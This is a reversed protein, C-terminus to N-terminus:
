SVKSAARAAQERKSLWLLIPAAVFISSYTGVLIGILLCFAFGHIGEGGWIYMLLIAIITTSSTLLTRSLTQTVSANIMKDTLNPSKGKVERIRDFVVITDNLSYGIITLIAAVITLSIKFDEILLFGFPKFLWHSVALLGVTIAVDHILAIVAAVGYSVNNFRFWIYITIFLLSLLLGAIARQQMEGAVRGEIKSFSQFVPKTRVAEKMKDLIASTTSEDFPLKVKWEGFGVESNRTWNTGGSPELEVQSDVLNRGAASTAAVLGEIVQSANLKAATSGLTDRFVLNAETTFEPAFSPKVPEAAPATGSQASSAEAPASEASPTQSPATPEAAPDQYAVMFTRRDRPLSSQTKGVIKSEMDYTVLSAGKAGNFGKLLRERVQADDKLSVDLKYVSNKAFDKMEVNTLTTQIPLGREDEQFAAQAITRVEDPEMSKDLTFVVSTGGNFDIDLFEKGRLFTAALGVAILLGSVLYALNRYSLFDIDQPGFLSRKAQNVYDAMNLKALGWREAIEFLNHAFFVATFMSIVLGIILTMAFGKIQETGVYYLVFASILTTLNSDFITTWARDFGNRIAMRTTANKEREERIREFVLVNADVSMGVSLVLGALGALTLPQRFLMMCAMIMALNLALSITAVFGAFRYYALVGLVTTGLGLWSAFKGKAIADAGMTAGVVNESIPQKSIAGPLSGSNLIQVLFEVDKLTFNGEIQGEGRIPSNLSPASLVIGDLLIAMRRKFGTNTDPQNAITMKLMKEAGGTTMVFSVLYGGNKSIEVKARSLDAGNVEIYPTGNKQLALLVDVDQIKQSELWFEFDNPRGTLVPNLIEGTRANRITDGPVYGQVETAGSQDASRGLTRWVGSVEPEGTTKNPLTVERRLRIDPSLNEAQTRATKILEEHDNLNAVIRFQLIGANTIKRKVEEIETPDVDAIIIEIKDDGAPRVVSENMGSPNIRNQLPAIFDRSSVRTGSNGVTSQDIQYILNTGGKIDPGLKLQGTALVIGTAIIALMIWSFAMAHNPMRLRNAFFKGLVFPVIVALVFLGVDYLGRWDNVTSDGSGLSTQALTLVSTSLLCDLM